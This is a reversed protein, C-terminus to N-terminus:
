NFIMSFYATLLTPAFFIEISAVLHENKFLRDFKIKHDGRKSVGSINNDGGWPNKLGGGGM